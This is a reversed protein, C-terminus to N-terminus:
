YDRFNRMWDPWIPTDANTDFNRHWKLMWLEKLGVRRTTWDMFLVNIAGDHRNICFVRMEKGGARASEQEHSDRMSRRNMPLTHSAMVVGLLM